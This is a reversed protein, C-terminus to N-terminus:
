STTTVKTQSPAGHIGAPVNFPKGNQGMMCTQFAAPNGEFKVKMSTKIFMAEGKIKSSVVGGASGAEDGSTMPVKSKSTLAPKNVVKVKKTCTGASAQNMMAMNPYPIPIPGAPSPTKCVDPFGSSMGGATTTIGFM